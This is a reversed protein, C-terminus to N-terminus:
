PKRIDLGPLQAATTLFQVEALHLSRLADSSERRLQVLTKQAELVELFSVLGSELGQQMARLMQEAKPVIGTEYSRAVGRAASLSTTATEIELTIRRQVDRLDAERAQRASEASQVALRNEGRDFLPMTLVVQLGVDDRQFPRRDLSWIDAAIGAFLTPKGQRRAELVAAKAVEIHGATELMEPRRELMGQRFVELDILSTWQTLPLEAQSPKGILSNVTSRSTAVEARALILTQEARNLEVEARTLQVAPAEGIEIRKGIAGVITSATGVGSAANLENVVAARYSAYASLVESGVALQAHLLRAKAVQVEAKARQARASRTGSLDFSQGFVFNSNTFGIGPALEVEPNKPSGLSKAAAAAALVDLRRAAVVPNAAIAQTVFDAM